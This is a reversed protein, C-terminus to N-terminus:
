DAKKITVTSGPAAELKTTNWTLKEEDSLYTVLHRGPSIDAKIQLTKGDETQLLITHEGAKMEMSDLTGEYDDSEPIDSHGPPLTATHIGDIYLKGEPTILTQVLKGAQKGDVLVMADSFLQGEVVIIIRAPEPKKCGQLLLLSLIIGLCLAISVLKGTFVTKM